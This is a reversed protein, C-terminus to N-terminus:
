VSTEGHHVVGVSKPLFFFFDRVDSLGSHDRWCGSTPDVVHFCYM